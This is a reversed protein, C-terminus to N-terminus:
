DKRRPRKATIPPAVWRDWGPFQDPLRRNRDIVRQVSRRQRDSGLSYLLSFAPLDGGEAAWALVSRGYADCAAPDAGHALLVRVIEVKGTGAAWMLATEGARTAMDVPTGGALLTQVEALDGRRVAEILRQAPGAEDSHTLRRRTVAQVDDALSQPLLIDVIDWCEHESAATIASAGRASHITADAGADLLKRLVHIHGGAAAAMLATEHEEDVADPSAGHALLIEVIDQRGSAAAALISPPNAWMNNPDAGAELLLRVIDVHGAEAAQTLPSEQGPGSPDVPAGTALYERVRAPQGSAAANSLDSIPNM